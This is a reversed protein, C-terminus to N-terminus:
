RGTSRGAATQRRLRSGPGGRRLQGGAAERGVRVPGAADRRLRQHQVGAAPRARRVCRLQVSACRWLAAGGARESARRGFRGGDPLGRRPLVHVAVGADAWLPDAGAGAGPFCGAGGAARGSRPRDSAPEWEGQGSRPAVARAAKGTAAREGPTPHPIPKPKSPRRDRQRTPQASDTEPDHGADGLEARDSTGVTGSGGLPHEIDTMIDSGERAPSIEFLEARATAEISGRRLRHTM